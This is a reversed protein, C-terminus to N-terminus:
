FVNEIRLKYKQSMRSICVDLRGCSSVADATNGYGTYEMLEALYLEIKEGDLHSGTMSMFTREDDVYPEMKEASGAGAAFDERELHGRTESNMATLDETIRDMREGYAYSGIFILIAITVATIFSKM